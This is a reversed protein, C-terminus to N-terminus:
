YCVIKCYEKLYSSFRLRTSKAACDNLLLQFRNNEIIFSILVGHKAKDIGDALTLIPKDEVVRIIRELQWSQPSTIFLIHCSVCDNYDSIYIPMIKRNKIRHTKSYEKFMEMLPCQATFGIIFPSSSDSEGPSVAPWDVFPIIKNIMLFRLTDENIDAQNITTFLQFLLIPIILFIRVCRKHVM